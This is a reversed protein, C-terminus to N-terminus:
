SGAPQRAASSGPQASYVAKDGGAGPEDPVGVGVGQAGAVFPPSLRSPPPPPASGPGLSFGESSDLSKYDAATQQQTTEPEGHVLAAKFLELPVSPGARHSM